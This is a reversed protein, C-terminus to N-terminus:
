EFHRLRGGHVAAVATVIAHESRHAQHQRRRSQQNDKDVWRLGVAQDM